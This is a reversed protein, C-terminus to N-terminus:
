SRSSPTMACATARGTARVGAAGPRDGAVDRRRAEAHVRVLAVAAASSTPATICQAAEIENSRGSSSARWILTSPVRSITANARSAFASRNMWTEVAYTAPILLPKNRSSWSSSPWSKRLVYSCVLHSASCTTLSAVSRLGTIARGDITM